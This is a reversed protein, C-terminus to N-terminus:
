FTHGINFHVQWNKADDFVPRAFDLGAPGIATKIKFGAGAAYHLDNIRYSFSKAWVNGADAFLALKMKRGVDFRFEVSSELLSNGGIPTENEDHPGLNSRSWGRVSHSGGAFFREEYPIFTNDDTRKIGGIKGKLGLVVGRRIGLYTKFEGLLRFFPMESGWIIDNTKTNFSIAFGQVPDLIPDANNYIGGIVIGRKKYYSEVEQSTNSESFGSTDVSVDEFIIGISTNLEKSFNQLFTVNYGVKDLKYGPEDQQQAFPHLTLTNMPFLFSPQSFKVYVNYPELGSHKAYFNLRGTNTIFSLYQFDTFARLKDERGYGAGFRASWRPAENILIQMPLTDVPQQEIQTKVSAVRYNGQSYINKQSQDIKKKSWIEGEEYALQRLISETRIRSNGVVNTPGFYTLPGRNIDWNLKTTNKVTDVDLKPDVVAFPYGEDYFVEAITLRDKSIDEDRFIKSESAESRFLINRQEGSGLVEGLRYVSDVQYSIGSIVIPEGETVYLTLKVKKNKTVVVGPKEFRVHYYGAKQYFVKLRKIDDYYLKSNYSVPEKGLIKQKFWNSSELTIEDKLRSNPFHKNGRFKVKRVVVNEQASSLLSFFMLFMCFVVYKM